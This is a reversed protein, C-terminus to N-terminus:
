DASSRASFRRAPGSRDQSGAAAQLAQVAEEPSAFTQQVAAPKPQAEQQEAAACGALAALLALTSLGAFRTWRNSLKM